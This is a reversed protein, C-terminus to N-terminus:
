PLAHFSGDCWLLVPLPISVPHVVGEADTHDYLHWDHADAIHHLIVKSPDFAEEAATDASAHETDNHPVSPTVAWALRPAASLLWLGLITLCLSFGRVVFCHRM